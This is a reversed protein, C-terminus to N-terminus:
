KQDKIKEHIDRYVQELAEVVRPGPRSIIDPDISYIRNYRVASIGDWKGNWSRVTDVLEPLTIIVEPNRRIIEEMEIRPYRVKSHSIVNEGGSIEIIDYIFSGPGVSIMPEASALYLTRVKRSGGVKNRITEIRYTLDQAKKRAPVEEGTIKGISIIEKLVDEISHPNLVYVSINVRELTDVVTRRNGEETALVLDPKLSIIREIDPSVLWGISTKKSAEEPYNCFDTVGIVRDGLNLYFLTETISPALSIIREPRKPIEIRRGIDDTFINAHAYSSVVIFITLATALVQFTKSM